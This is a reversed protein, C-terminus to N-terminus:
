DVFLPEMALRERQSRMATEPPIREFRSSADLTMSLIRADAATNLFLDDHGLVWHVALDIESQDELPRYWTTFGRPGDGWPSRTVAKITQIAVNRSRCIAFLAEVDAQYSPNQALIYSYPLLVSDFDFRELALRHMKATQLGHGTVGIYRILGQRRAELAAELVGGPGMAIEWEQPDTLGHFQWLDVYDVNLKQLSRSLEEMASAATREKVKTALFFPRGNRRIWDGLRIEAQGYSSAVDVHNIGHSLALEMMADTEEQTASYFAAAGLITRTSFHGSRGFPNESIM